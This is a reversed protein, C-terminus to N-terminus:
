AAVQAMTLTAGLMDLKLFVKKFRNRRLQPDCAALGMCYKSFMQPQRNMTMAIMAPSRRDLRPQKFECISLAPASAVSGDRSAFHLGLDLGVCALANVAESLRQGVREPPQDTPSTRRTQEAPAPWPTAAPGGFRVQRGGNLPDISLLTVENTDPLSPVLRYRVKASRGVYSLV